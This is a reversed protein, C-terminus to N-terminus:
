VWKKADEDSAREWMALEDNIEKLSEPSFKYPILQKARSLGLAFEVESYFPKMAKLKKTADHPSMGGDLLLVQYTAAIELYSPKFGAMVEAFQSVIEKEKSNLSVPTKLKELETRHLYMQETLAPSYAGRVYISFEFGTDIGMYKLLCITKQMVMKNQFDNLNPKIGLEGLIAIVKNIDGM